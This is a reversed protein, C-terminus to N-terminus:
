KKDNIVKKIRVVPRIMKETTGFTGFDDIQILENESLKQTIIKFINDIMMDMEKMSIKPYKEHMIRVLDVKSLM